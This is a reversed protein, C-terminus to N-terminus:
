EGAAAREHGSERCCAPMSRSCGAPSGARCTPLWSCLRRRWRRRRRWAASRRRPPFRTCRMRRRVRWGAGGADPHAADARRDRDAGAGARERPHRLPRSRARRRARHRARRAEDRHLADAAWAGALFQHLVHRPDLRGNERMVPVAHKLTAAVGRANVAFVRDWEELDLGETERWPPVLGANAVVVDVRGFKERASSFAAALDAEARVDAAAFEFGAPLNASGRQSELDLALGTAGAGSFAEVIALGLGRSGGTVLAVRGRLFESM